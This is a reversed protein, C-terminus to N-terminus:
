VRNPLYPTGVTGVRFGRHRHERIAESYSCFTNGESFYLVKNRMTKYTRTLLEM